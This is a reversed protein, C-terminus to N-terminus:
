NKIFVLCDYEAFGKYDEKLKFGFEELLKVVYKKELKVEDGQREIVVLRGEPRLSRFVSRTFDRQERSIKKILDEQTLTKNSNSKNESYNYHYIHIDCIIAADLYDPPLTLNEPDNLLLTINEYYRGYENQEMAMKRRVRLQYLLPIPDTDTSFVRGNEGVAGSLPFTLFGHGSGIDAIFDGPKIGALKIVTEPIITRGYNIANPANTFRLKQDNEPLIRTEDKELLIAYYDKINIDSRHSPSTPPTNQFHDKTISARTNATKHHIPPTPSPNQIQRQCSSIFFFLFITLLVSVFSKKKSM